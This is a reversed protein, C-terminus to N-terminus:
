VAIPDPGRAPLRALLFAIVIVFVLAFLTALSAVEFALLTPAL